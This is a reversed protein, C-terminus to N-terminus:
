RSYDKVNNEMLDETKRRLTIDHPLMYTYPDHSMTWIRIIDTICIYIYESPLIPLNYKVPQTTAVNLM